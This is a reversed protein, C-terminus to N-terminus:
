HNAQNLKKVAWHQFCLCQVLFLTEWKKMLSKELLNSSIRLKRSCDYKSCFDKISFTMKQVTLYLSPLTTAKNFFLSQCMNEQSNQSIEIFVKKVFVDRPSQKQKNGFINVLHINRISSLFSRCFLM